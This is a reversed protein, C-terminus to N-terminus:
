KVECFSASRAVRWERVICTYGVILLWVFQTRAAGPLRGDRKVCGIICSGVLRISIILAALPENCGPASYGSHLFTLRIGSASDLQAWVWSLYVKNHM